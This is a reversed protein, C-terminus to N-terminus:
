SARVFAIARYIVRRQEDPHWSGCMSATMGDWGACRLRGILSDGDAIGSATTVVGFVVSIPVSGIVRPCFNSACM